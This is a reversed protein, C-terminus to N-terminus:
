KFVPLGTELLWRSKDNDYRWRQEDTITKEVVNNSTVYRIEVTQLVIKLDNDADDQTDRSLAQYSTVKINQLAEWDPLPSPPHAHFDLSKKFLSWRIAGAYGNLQEEMKMLQYDHACATLALSLAMWRAATLIRFYTM